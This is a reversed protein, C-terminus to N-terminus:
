QHAYCIRLLMSLRVHELFDSDCPVLPHLHICLPLSTRLLSLTNKNGLFISPCHGCGLYVHHFYSYTIVTGCMVVGTPKADVQVAYRTVTQLTVPTCEIPRTQLGRELGWM